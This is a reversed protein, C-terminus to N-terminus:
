EPAAEGEPNIVENSQIVKQLYNASDKLIRKQTEYDVYVLGFRKDYGHAWEFNDLLSWVFYGRLPVGDSIARRAAAFHEHLYDVRDVDHVAEGELVDNFAAGNETVYIALPRYERQLGVLLERLGDPMIPWGMETVEYGAEVLEERKLASFGFADVDASVARVFRNAYYNVGLFDLPSSIMEMDGAEVVPISEGYFTLMDKPYGRGFLPDLFWRNLQGDAMRAAQRDAPLDSAPYPISLNLTIGAKADPWLARIVNMARGHAVLANHSVQNATGLDKIGPAHRGAYHGAYAFVHPENLTIWDKVRDGLRQAVAETYCAFWEVVSRNGWGGREQLAAPLDWHYLTVFPRIGAELLADVLRDYFALGAENAKGHGQPLVRPWSVSFRYSKLGMAKMIEVDNQWHHFHDDAIDGTDNNLM